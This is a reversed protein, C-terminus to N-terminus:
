RRNNSFSWGPLAEPQGRLFSLLEYDNEDAIMPTIVIYGSYYYAIDSNNPIPDEKLKFELNWVERGSKDVKSSDRGFVWEIFWEGSEAVKVGKIESPPIRPISVTLYQNKKMEKVLPSQALEIVWKIVSEMSNPINEDLGSVAIAPFGLAAAVRAAGITGSAIWDAGLNPGGNIGSIVLDPPKDKMLVFLAFIVCDGPYGDVGYAHIGEGLSYPEVELRRKKIVSMYHTSSSRDGHPAVVYTESVQAFTNALEIIKIDNIGDDNTILVRRPWPASIEKAEGNSSFFSSYIFIVIFSIIRIKKM